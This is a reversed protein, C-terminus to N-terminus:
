FDGLVTSMAPYGILVLFGVFLMVVPIAMRETSSQADSEAQAVAHDRLSKAKVALSERVRAGETGALSVSASLEALENIGLREGLRALASWPTEGTLNAAELANRLQGFAWGRGINAADRLASEVGAGGALSIVVLDLFSGLAHRFGDRRENAESRLSLDPVFFFIVGLVLSVGIPIAFGFSIGVFRMALMTVQPLAFGVFAVVVKQGLHQELSRNTLLLDPELHQLRMGLSSLVRGLSAGLTRGFLDSADHEEGASAIRTLENRRQLRAIAASLPPAPPFLLRWSAFAAFGFVVGLFLALTV